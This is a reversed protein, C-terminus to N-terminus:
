ALIAADSAEVEVASHSELGFIGSGMHDIM